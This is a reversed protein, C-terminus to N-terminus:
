KFNHELKWKIIIEIYWDIYEKVQKELDFNKKAADAAQTGMRLRLQDNELLQIIREAMAEAKGQPTLFGTIGDEIQEPIGGTATTVVPIGCALAELVTTPFTDARAAHIYIDAAQYYCAVDEPDKQYPVFHIEAQGIREPPANEGLAIFLLNSEKLCEAVKYIATRMTNYDKWINDRIGNATFLLVKVDLSIGLKTRIAQKNSSHFISLDVGNPIVKREIIAPSLVSQEVKKMLWQSPTAIYLRTKGYIKQKRKLNYATADRKIKPYITLDPCHGCGIKWRECDFSHACHGSLLWADHLTLIIPVQQSLRPLERLDFYNGHLNHCHIIDPKRDTLELLQETAPFNFDEYGQQIELFRKIQGFSHLCRRLLKAGPVKGVLPSFMNGNAIWFRAWHSRYKDNQILLVNANKSLKNGVALWSDYGQLKYSELLNWAIKEAGGDIDSTNVQLIHLNSKDMLVM